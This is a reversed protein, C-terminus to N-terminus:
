CGNAEVCDGVEIFKDNTQEGLIAAGVVVVIAIVALILGYEVMTAGNERVLRSQVYTLANLLM